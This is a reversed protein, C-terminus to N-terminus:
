GGRRSGWGFLGAAAASVVEGTTFKGGEAAVLEFASLRLLGALLLVVSVALVELGALAVGSLDEGFFLGAARGPESFALAWGSTPGRTSRLSVGLTGGEDLRVAGTEPDTLAGEALASPGCFCHSGTLAGSLVWFLSKRTCPGVSSADLAGLVSDVM